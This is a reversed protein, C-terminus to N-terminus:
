TFILWVTLNYKGPLVQDSLNVRTIGDAYVRSDSSGDLLTKTNYETDTSIRNVEKKLQDIEQQIAQKDEYGNTDNAAQVSLERIRQLMNSVESLAGDAIQVVSVADQANSKAQDLADIQARMKNSIAMGAPNEGASNIKFGSSLRAMSQQLRNETRLLQKNTMVASMNRNIKM